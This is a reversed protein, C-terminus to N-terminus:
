YIISPNNLEYKEIHYGVLEETPFSRDKLINYERILKLRNPM